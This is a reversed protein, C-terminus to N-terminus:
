KKFMIKESKFMFGLLVTLVVTLLINSIISLAVGLPPATFSMIAATALGSGLVPIVYLGIPAAATFFMSVMGFLVFIIMLPAILASAEKVSKSFASLVSFSSIIVLVLSIIIGFLMFYDGVGYFAAAEAGLMSGTIKPLSLIVGLFSSIGSILAICTLSIIKGLALQWRKVPTILMTAMTGREKEGAIAEPAVSVGASALMAFMLMPMLISLLQAATDKEEALDFSVDLSSNIGFTPNQFASLVASAYSYGAVSTTKSSNFFIRVEPTADDTAIFMIFLDKTGETVSQSAQEATVSEESVDLVTGLADSLEQPMDLVYATPKYKEDVKGFDSMITGIINYLAFILLGPLLMTVVMRKDKFFRSFEKKLITLVNKM